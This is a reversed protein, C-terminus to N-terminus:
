LASGAIIPTIIQTNGLTMEWGVARAIGSIGGPLSPLSGDMGLQYGIDDGINWDIGLRPSDPIEGSLGISNTGGDLATVAALAYSDLTATVSISTSPTFRYEFKPRSLDAISQPASRPRAATTGTSNAIVSTAGKGNSYDETYLFDTVPGGLRDMEFTANPGSAAPAATGIRSSVYMVPTIREPNAQWEWGVTWEPGGIVGMLNQMASYVTMNDQDAYTRDRATGSGSFAVRFPVGSAIVYNTMLYNIIDNQGVGVPAYDGVYRRDLYSELSALTMPILNGATRKRITVMGGWLPIGHAPDAPNDALLIMNTAGAQTARLWNEPAEPLPLTAPTSDYRGIVSKVKDVQLLPLDAIIIGTKAETAVWSLGM